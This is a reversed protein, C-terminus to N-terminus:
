FYHKTASSDRQYQGFEALELAQEGTFVTGEVCVRQGTNDVCCAGCIGFGCKMHREVSIQSPVGNARCLEAIRKEMLEPGCAYVCDLKREKLLKELVATNYGPEGFSGDDTTFITDLGLAKVRDRYILYDASRAGIIMTAKKGQKLAAEALLMLSAAGYGGGILVIEDGELTFHNGYPGLLGLLDGQQLALVANSWPGVGAITLGMLGDQQYSIGIPKSDVGPLWVMLFQGPKAQEEYPLLFSKIDKAESIIKQIRVTQPIDYRM